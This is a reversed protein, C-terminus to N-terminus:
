EGGSALKGMMRELSDQLAGSGVTSFVEGEFYHTYLVSFILDRLFFEVIIERVDGESLRCDKLYKHLEAGPVAKPGEQNRFNNNSVLIGFIFNDVLYNIHLVADRIDTESFDDVGCMYFDDCNTAM